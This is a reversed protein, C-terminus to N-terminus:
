RQAKNRFAGRQGTPWLNQNEDLIIYYGGYPLHKEIIEELQQDADLWADLQLDIYARISNLRATATIGATILDYEYGNDTNFHQDVLDRDEITIGTQGVSEEVITDHFEQRKALPINVLIPGDGQYPEGDYHGIDWYYQSEHQRHDRSRDDKVKLQRRLWEQEAFWDDDKIGGGRVRADLIKVATISHDM